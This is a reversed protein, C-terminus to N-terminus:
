VVAILPVALYAVEDSDDASEDNDDDDEDSVLIAYIACISLLFCIGASSITVSVKKYTRSTNEDYMDAYQDLENNSSDNVYMLASACENSVKEADFMDWMCTDTDPGYNLFRHNNKAQQVPESKPGLRIKVTMSISRSKVVKVPEEEALRRRIGDQLESNKNIVSTTCFEIVDRECKDHVDNLPRVIKIPSHIVSALSARSLQLLILAIISKM